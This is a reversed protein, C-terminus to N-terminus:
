TGARRLRRRLRRWAFGRLFPMPDDAAVIHRTECRAQWALWRGLGMGQRRAARLDNWPLSWRVGPRLLAPPRPLGALDAYALAPLNVGAVAGPLHWLNFRPNVELLKLEGSPSRKFDVKAVGRLGLASMCHRGLECVDGEDTIECATTFGFRAPLTRIKRGTFEGAVEGREDVYAHYSEIRDEDGAVHEQAVMGIAAAEVQPWVAALAAPSDVVLAKAAGGVPRWTAHRRTVPKLVVPYDLALDPPGAEGAPWLVATAPVPLELEAALEQFRIKDVLQEVLEADAIAFRFREALEARNRSAFLLDGDYQYFLVPPVTEEAAFALLNARLGAPDLWNDAWPIRVDVYRSYAKPSDPRTVVACRVGALGLPRVLDTDGLVCARPPAGPAARAAEIGETQGGAEIM